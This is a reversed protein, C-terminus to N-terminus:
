PSWNFNEIEARLEEVAAKVVRAHAEDETEDDQQSEEDPESFDLSDFESILDDIADIREQLLEGTPGQQLSEPMNSLKDETDSKLSELDSKINEIDGEFSSVEIYDSGLADFAENISYLTSYFDSQTLQSPKPPTKSFRKGGRRFKWWYYSEGKKIGADKNNKRAKKVFHARAM